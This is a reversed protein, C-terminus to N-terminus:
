AKIRRRSCSHYYADCSGVVTDEVVAELNLRYTALPVTWQGVPGVSLSDGASLLGIAILAAQAKLIWSMCKGLILHFACTNFIPKRPCPGGNVRDGLSESKESSREQTRHCWWHGWRCWCWRYRYKFRVQMHHPYWGMFFKSCPDTCTCGFSNVM